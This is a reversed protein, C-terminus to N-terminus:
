ERANSSPLLGGKYPVDEGTQRQWSGTPLQAYYPWGLYESKSHYEAMNGLVITLCCELKDLHLSKYM